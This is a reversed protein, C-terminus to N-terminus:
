KVISFTENSAAFPLGDASDGVRVLCRGSVTNPIKWAYIGTNKAASSLRTWTSGGDASFAIRVTKLLGTTKWRISRASGVKWEEGGAPSLVSLTPDKTLASVDCDWIGRGYTGFRATRRNPLYEVSWYTQDPAKGASIPTWRRASAQYLYPGVETAAFLLDETETAAVGYVLTSPLGTSFPAFTQGHNTSKYVPPNSYGSGALYVTGLRVKSPLISSGYFYHGDPGDFAATPLWTRGGDKSSFFKGASMAVYRYASKLPSAALASIVGNDGAGFNYSLKEYGINGSRYSVHYLYAGTGPGGGGLYVSQPSAPDPMLPPMWLQGSCTFDGRGRYAGGAWLMAFGPYVSWVNDAPAETADGSVLHGYDGSIGQTFDALSTKPPSSTQFGQDQSGAYLAQGDRRSTYTGYYQSVRLGKLSINSVTKFGDKSVFLGGDTAIILTEGGAAPISCFGCLDAHLRHAMNGYYEFWESVKAWTAGRDWSRYGNVGGFYVWSPNVASCAFSSPYFPTEPVTSRRIWTTGGDPSDFVDSKGDHADLVYLRLDDSPAGTLFTTGSPSLPITGAPSLVAGALRYMTGNAAFYANSSGEGASWLDFRGPPGYQPEGYTALPAFSAGRDTSRYLTIQSNWTSRNWEQALLYIGPDAGGVVVSKRLAGWFDLSELGSARNWGAGENESWYYGKTACALIRNRGANSMLHLSQLDMKFKENLPKWASGDLPGRWITGGCSASYVLKRAADYVTRHMRGALNRSGVERWRVAPATELNQSARFRTSEDRARWDVGPAARHMLAIWEERKRYNQEGERVVITEGPQPLSAARDAPRRILLAGAGAISAFDAIVLIAKKLVSAPVRM